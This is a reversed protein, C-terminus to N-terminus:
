VKSAHISLSYLQLCKFYFREIFIVMREGRIMLFQFAFHLLRHTNYEVKSILKCIKCWGYVFLHWCWVFHFCLIFNFDHFFVVFFISGTHTLLLFNFNLFKFIFFKFIKFYFINM